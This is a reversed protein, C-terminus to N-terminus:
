SINQFIVFFDHIEKVKNIIITNKYAFLSPKHM